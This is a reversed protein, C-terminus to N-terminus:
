LLAGGLPTSPPLGTLPFKGVPTLIRTRGLLYSCPRACIMTNFKSLLEATVTSRECAPSAFPCGYSIRSACFKQPLGTAVPVYLPERMERGIFMVGTDGIM